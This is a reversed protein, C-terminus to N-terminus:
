DWLRQGIKPVGYAMMAGVGLGVILGVATGAGPVVSGMASGAVAASAMSGLAGGAAVGVVTGASETVIAKTPDMGGDIDNAIAPITGVVAGAPGLRRGISHALDDSSAAAATALGHGTADSVAGITVGAAMAQYDPTWSFGGGNAPRLEGGGTTPLLQELASVRARVRDCVNTAVESAHQLETCVSITAEQCSIQLALIADEALPGVIQRLTETSRDATVVGNDAVEYNRSELDDVLDVLQRRAPAVVAAADLFDLAFGEIVAVLKALTSSESVVREAAAIAADGRWSEALVNQESELGVRQGDILTALDAFATSAASLSEANWIRIQPVTITM